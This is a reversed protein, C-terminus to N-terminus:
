DKEIVAMLQAVIDPDEFFLFDTVYRDRFCFAFKKPVGDGTMVVLRDKEDIETVTGAANGSRTTIKAGILFDLNM